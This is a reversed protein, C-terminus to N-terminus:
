DGLNFMVKIAKTENQRSATDFAAALSKADFGFRHTILPLVDVRQSKMLHICVPYQLCLYTWNLCSASCAALIVRCAVRKGVDKAKLLM